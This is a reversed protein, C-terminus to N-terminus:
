VDDVLDFANLLLGVGVKCIKQVGQLGARDVAIDGFLGRRKLNAALVIRQGVQREHVVVGAEGCGIGLGSNGNRELGSRAHDCGDVINQCGDGGLGTLREHRLHHAEARVGIRLRAVCDDKLRGVGVGRVTHEANRHFAGVGGEVPRLRGVRVASNGDGALIVEVGAAVIHLDCLVNGGLEADPLLIRRFPM